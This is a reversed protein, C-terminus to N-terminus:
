RVNAKAFAAKADRPLGTDHERQYYKVLKQEGEPSAKRPWISTDDQEPPSLTGRSPILWHDLSKLM